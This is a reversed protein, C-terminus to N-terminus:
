RAASSTCRLSRGPGLVTAPRGPDAILVQEVGAARARQILEFLPTTMEDWFCIDTGMLTHLERWSLM